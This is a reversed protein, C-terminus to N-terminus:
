SSIRDGLSATLEQSRNSCLWLWAICVSWVHQIGWLLLVRMTCGGRAHYCVGGLATRLVVGDRLVTLDRCQDAFSFTTRECWWAARRQELAANYLCRHAERQAQLATEQAPTPYLRYTTRRNVTAMGPLRVSNHFRLM